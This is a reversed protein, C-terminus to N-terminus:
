RRRHCERNNRRNKKKNKKQEAVVNNVEFKSQLDIFDEDILRQNIEIKDATEVTPEIYPFMSKKHDIDPVNIIEIVEDLPDEIKM